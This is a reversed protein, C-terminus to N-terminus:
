LAAGGRAGDTAQETVACFGQEVSGYREIFDAVSSDVAICRRHLILTRDASDLDAAVHTSMLVTTGNSAM